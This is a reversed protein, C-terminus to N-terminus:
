NQTDRQHTKYKEGVPDRSSGSGYPGETGKKESEIMGTRDVIGTQEAIRFAGEAIGVGSLLFLSVFLLGRM